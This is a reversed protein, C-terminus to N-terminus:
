DSEAAILAYVGTPGCEVSDSQKAHLMRESRRRASLTMTMMSGVRPECEASDSCSMTDQWIPSGEKKKTATKQKTAAQSAAQAQEERIAARKKEFNAKM